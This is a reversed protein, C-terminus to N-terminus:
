IGLRFRQQLTLDLRYLQSLASIVAAVVAASSGLGLKRPGEALESTIHLNYSAPAAGARERYDEVAGIAATLYDVEGTDFTVANAASRVWRRPGPYAESTVQGGGQDGRVLEVAATLYRDVAVLIAPHGPDVVAYEGAIFLKGPARATVIEPMCAKWSTP